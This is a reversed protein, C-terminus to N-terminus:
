CTLHLIANTSATDANALLACAQDTTVTVLTVGRQEAISRVADTVPLRGHAGTGVILTTCNWPIDEHESLPTHGYAPKLQRSAAKDRLRVQGHDVVVDETYRAGDIEIEGFRIFSANM